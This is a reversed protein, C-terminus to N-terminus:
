ELDSEKDLNLASNLPTCYNPKDSPIYGPLCLCKYSGETNICKANKCLSMRNNLESCENVDVCTMKAMDLHYGDFCDCTYGEQVRVCRGNECGNLIGCEEAQLEEFSNLFRDQIFYPDTEPGYQESFDVLADRGYPRRRGTVPINCLQAYDDSDKMPCLACQMGWAEGYLCCCETYTTQKGVLPRSCVYEESLHEWCLDQYVDTEEIQENSETPQVCRKESADLVMPHTCFCNYSGETNVCQGDICSNPDQCEDMDFCQLKVPDYYTGQKCYCEYGPQTNLCYGNKCIEEGFLLCEDADKYNEGGTDYSSEGAPVLGKGRPCMETFEATGQVPCPFIECNDGWGAGSTCCCEQKTVNPALVNDCLSADNLNYYCEKKEERPQRDVGSDETVRSRCQGTMPSYEQNEDACVCLFSGEVNECFAEGCVGSLLECENVDVCGQGDQPAQFGQYCLCRFSGATNDCFGHSDCM